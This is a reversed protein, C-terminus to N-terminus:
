YLFLITTIDIVVIAGMIVEMLDEWVMIFDRMDAVKLSGQGQEWAGTGEV